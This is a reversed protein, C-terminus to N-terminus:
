RSLRDRVSGRMQLKLVDSASPTGEADAGSTILGALRKAETELDFAITSIPPHTMRGIYSDDVGLLSLDGPVSLGAENAFMMVAFAIDDNYACVATVGSAVTSELWTRSGAGGDEPLRYHSLQAGLEEAQQLAGELRPASFWDLKPDPPSVYALSNHGRRVLAEVQLRGIDVQRISALDPRGPVKGMFARLQIGRQDALRADADSLECMSVIATPTLAALVQELNDGPARQHSLMTLGAAALDASLHELLVGLPGGIPWDPVLCLVVSSRGSRLARGEPSPTYGLDEAAAWVRRRTEEPISVNPRNNLVFSVTTRSVGAAEAVDLSSVRRSAARAM